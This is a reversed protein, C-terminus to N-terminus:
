DPLVIREWKGDVKRVVIGGCFECTAHDDIETKYMGVVSNKGFLLKKEEELFATLKEM